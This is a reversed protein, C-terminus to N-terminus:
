KHLFTYKLGAAKTKDLAMITSIMREMIFSFYPVNEGHHSTNEYNQLLLYRLEEDERATDLFEETFLFYKEWFQTTAAFFNYWCFPMAINMVDPLNMGMKKFIKNTLSSIGPHWFEGQRWVNYHWPTPNIPELFWVDNGPNEQIFSLFESGTVQTKERFKHSVFGFIDANDKLARNFGNYRMIPWERLTPLTIPCINSYPIFEKELKPLQDPSFYIQYINIKM